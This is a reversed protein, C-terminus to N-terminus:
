RGATRNSRPDGEPLIEPTMYEVGDETPNPTPSIGVFPDGTGNDDKLIQYRMLMAFDEHTTNHCHTVYAGGFESFRVQMRVEGGEGLRWVDKRAGIQLPSNRDDVTRSITVGEEFHLHVPHDWGGGGNKLIWHEVEGPRPVVLSARNANMYHQSEGNIRVVWPFFERDECDPFCGAFVSDEDRKFELERVRVPTVIPIPETLRVPVQSRDLGATGDRYVHSANDASRMQNVVRFELVPGVAPDDTNRRWAKKIGVVEKPGRGNAHVIHNVLQFRDGIRTNTFDIIVDFREASGQADLDTVTVPNVLFNGDSAIVKMPVPDGNQNVLALKLFRSMCGNLLRFRYKRRMVNFFPAYAFNVLLRDGLFGDTDFIDFFLQGDPATAFDSIVLNVDFDINGWPLQTGSPLRLNVSDGDDGEFGRDPGSYYNMMGLNGKYVNEATFFFRHDHFWLTSQLERFDGRIPIHRGNKDIGCTRPESFDTNVTDARALCTAWHYDYFQGPFFYANNAGDSAPGNHANHNHTSVENRGFGNNDARNRPLSNYIRVIAPEGYRIKLLPPPLTGRAGLGGAGYTWVTNPAQAPFKPHFRSGSKVQGMSLLYGETPLYGEWLQHGFWMGPPRGECPGRGTMPNRYDAGGAATFDTHWSLRKSNRQGAASPWVAETEGNVVTHTLPYPTQLSLRPMEQTFPLAGFLPTAPTGTPIAGYASSAFPSLGNKLALAGTATFIGWKFLERRSVQGQSLAEVIEARNDRAKQAERLRNKPANKPLYM